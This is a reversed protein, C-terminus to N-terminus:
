SVEGTGDENFKATCEEDPNWTWLSSCLVSTITNPAPEAMTRMHPRRKLYILRPVFFFGVYLHCNEFSDRVYNRREQVPYIDSRDALHSILHDRYHMSWRCYSRSSGFPPSRAGAIETVGIMGKYIWLGNNRRVVYGMTAEPKRTGEDVPRGWLDCKCTPDLNCSGPHLGGQTPSMIQEARDEPIRQAGGWAIAFPM